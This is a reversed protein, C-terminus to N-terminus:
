RGYLLLYKNELQSMKAKDSARKDNYGCLHLLGHVMIRKLETFVPVQEGLANEKIRDYSILIDGAICTKEERNDFTIVDTYYDHNLYQKNYQLLADDSMLVLNLENLQYGEKQIVKSLWARLKRREKFANTCDQVIFHIGSPM